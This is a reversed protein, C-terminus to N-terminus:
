KKLAPPSKKGATQRLRQNRLEQLHRMKAPNRGWEIQKNNPQGYLEPHIYFGRERANKDQEVVLPHAQAFADHRVATVQWSVKMGPMGGAISFQHNAVEAAVHLGPAAAGIATLQYRFDSNLAEFWGPLQITAVGNADLIANGTYINMMESSEVSTHFLYKNAPDQPHDIKFDKTGAFLTGTINVDGSFNGAFGLLPGGPSADIGDGGNPSGQGGLFWGGIGGQNVGNGGQAVIGNGAIDDSGNTLDGNGGGVSIGDSGDANSGTPASAGLVAIGISSLSGGYQAQVDLQAGPNSTGIGVAGGPAIIMEDGNNERFLIAGGAPRNLFTGLGNGILSYNTCNSFPAFGIGAYGAGCGPDGIIMTKGNGNFSQNAKFTNASSLQPVKTTDLNLTVNGGVGGGTLDTGAMIGSITGTGPSACIWASGNWQLVQKNACNKQLSLNLTGSTGGGTLGSGAATTVGTLTAGSTFVIDLEAPHSQAANEKSDFTASLGSNAVLALGDNPTSGNLWEDVASTVDILVYDNVNATTLPVSSAITNGLAPSLSSTITNESWSGNVLDLNFSGSKPVSNVFLKLTAKAVNTSTYGAPISSLDFQIYTTQISTASSVVGLTAANGYNTTATATNTYSDQHPTIQGFASTLVGLTILLVLLTFLVRNNFRKM